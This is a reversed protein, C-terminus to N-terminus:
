ECTMQETFAWAKDLDAFTRIFACIEVEHHQLWCAPSEIRASLRDLGLAILAASQQIAGGLVLQMSLVGLLLGSSVSCM